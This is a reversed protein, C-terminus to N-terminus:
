KLYSELTKKQSTSIPLELLEQRKNILKLYGLKQTISTIINPLIEKLVLSNLHQIQNPINNPLHRAYEIFIYRMLILLSEKTQYRIKVKILKYVNLIIKKNLLDINEDSFFIMELTIENGKNYYDESLMNYTNKLLQQRLFNANDNDAFYACPMEQYNFTINSM